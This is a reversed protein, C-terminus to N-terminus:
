DLKLFNKTHYLIGTENKQMLSELKGLVMYQLSQGEAYNQSRQQLNISWIHTPKNRPERNLKM